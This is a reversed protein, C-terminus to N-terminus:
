GAAPGDPKSVGPEWGLDSSSGLYEWKKYDFSRMWCGDLYTYKESRLQIRCLFEALKNEAERFRENMTAIALEHLRLFAFNTPYLLDYAPDGNQQIISAESTGYSENSQPPPYEGYSLEGIRERIAGCEQQEKLLDNAIKEAWRRYEEKNEVRILFSLPLLM